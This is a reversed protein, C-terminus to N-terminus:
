SLSWDAPDIRRLGPIGDFDVDPSVIEEFGALLATAANVADRGRVPSREMLRTAEAWVAEDFAHVVCALGLARAEALASERSTRRLRHFTVEQLGEVSVHLRIRGAHAAALLERCQEQAPHAGGLALLFTASDAFLARM